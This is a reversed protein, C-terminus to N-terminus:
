ENGLAIILVYALFGFESQIGVNKTHSKIHEDDYYELIRSMFTQTDECGFELKDTGLNDVVFSLFCLFDERTQIDGLYKDPLEASAFTLPLTGDNFKRIVESFQTM